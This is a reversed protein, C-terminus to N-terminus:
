GFRKELGLTWNRFLMELRARDFDQLRERQKRIIKERLSADTTVLNVLEGIVDYRKETILIGADGMTEPIAAAAYAIVPVDFYMSELLSVGFGEHESMSVFVSAGKYYATFGDKLECHGVFHVDKDVGLKKALLQLVQQHRPSALGVLLLRARPTILQQYYALLHILEDQRKNPVIRGTFLINVYGDNLWRLIRREAETDLFKNLNSVNLLYPLVQVNKFGLNRLESCNYDSDGVACPIVSLLPLDARAQKLNKYTPVHGFEFFHHPTINHYILVVRDPWNLLFRTIESVAGYHYILVDNPHHQYSLYPKCYQAVRTEARSVYIQSDYGWGCLLKMLDIAYNSIADGYFLIPLFQHIAIPKSM